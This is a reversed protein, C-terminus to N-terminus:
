NLSSFGALRAQRKRMVMPDPYLLGMKLGAGAHRNDKEDFLFKEPSSKQVYGRKKSGVRNDGSPLVM